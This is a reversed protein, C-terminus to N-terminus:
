YKPPSYSVENLINVIGHQKITEMERESRVLISGTFGVSNISIGNSQYCKRPVVFMWENTMIFNYSNGGTNYKKQITDDNDDKNNNNNNNDHVVLKLHNLLDIYNSEFYQARQDLSSSDDSLKSKDLQVAASHFGLSDVNVIVDPGKLHKKIVSEIPCKLNQENEFYPTRLLQVHKHPQSAGSQAGCNFFCLMDCKDVCEWIAKFDNRNLPEIQDQYDTTAIICHHNSVNFKNLVLNHTGFLDCVLLDKDCPLFPDIFQKKKQLITNNNNNNDNNNQNNQNNNICPSPSPSTSCSTSSSKDFNFPRKALAGAVSLMFNVNSEKIFVPHSEIKEIAGIRTARESVKQIMEWLSMSTTSSTVTNHMLNATGRLMISVSKDKYLLQYNDLMLSILNNIIPIQLSTEITQYSPKILNPALVIALNSNTMKNRDSSSAITGLLLLIVQLTVQNCQPISQLLTKVRRMQEHAEVGRSDGIEIIRDYLEYTFLPPIMERFFAKFVSAVHHPGAKQLIGELQSSQSKNITEKLTDVELQNPSVRFLGEVNIHNLLVNSAKLIFNPVFTKEAERSVLDVISVGFIKTSNNVTTLHSFQKLLGRKEEGDEVSFSISINNGAAATDNTGKKSISIIYKHLNNDPQDSVIIDNLHFLYKFKLLDGGGRQKKTFLIIDNCLFYFYVQDQKKTEFKVLKGEHLYIRGPIVFPDLLKKNNVKRYINLLSAANQAQALNDQVLQEVEKMMKESNIINVYDPWHSPTHNAIAFLQRQYMSLHNLPTAILAMLDYVQGPTNQCCEDIFAAFKVNEKRCRELTDIANKFNKVYNGYVKLEPAIRLFIDGLGEVCPWKNHLQEFQELIRQHVLFIEDISSFIANFDDDTIIHSPAANLKNYYHELIIKLNNNYRREEYILQRFAINRERLLSKSYTSALWDVRRKALFRRVCSQVKVVDKVYIQATKWTQLTDIANRIGDLYTPNVGTYFSLDLQQNYLIDMINMVVNPSIGPLSILTSQIANFIKFMDNNTDVWNAINSRKLTNNASSKKFDGNNKKLKMLGKAITYKRNPTPHQQQQPEKLQQAEKQQQPQQQQNLYNNLSSSSSLPTYPLSSFSPSTSSSSSSSSSSSITTSSSSLSSMSNLSSLPSQKAPSSGLLPPSLDNQRVHKQQYIISLLSDNQPHHHHHSPKRISPPIPTSPTKLSPVTSTDLLDKSTSSHPIDSQSRSQRTEVLHILSSNSPSTQNDELEDQEENELDVQSSSSDSYSLNSSQEQQLKFPIVTTTSQEVASTGGSGGSNFLKIMKNTNGSSPTSPSSSLASSAATASSPKPSTPSQDKRSIPIPAAPRPSSYPSTPPLLSTTTTSPNNLTPSGVVAQQKNNPSSSPSSGQFIRKSFTEIAQPTLTRRISLPARDVSPTTNMINGKSKNLGGSGGGGGGGSKSSINNNNNNSGHNSPTGDGSSSTSKSSSSPTSPLNPKPPPPQQQKTTPQQQKNKTNSTTDNNFNLELQSQTRSYRHESESKFCHRCKEQRWLQPDFLACYNM